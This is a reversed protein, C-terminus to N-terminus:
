EGSGAGKEVVVKYGKKVLQTVTEPTAAVRKEGAATERVVGVTLESYKLGVLAPKSAAAAPASAAAPAPAAASSLSRLLQSAITVRQATVRASAVASRASFRSSTTLVRVDHRGGAEWLRNLRRM